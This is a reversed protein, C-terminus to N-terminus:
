EDDDPPSSIYTKDYRRGVYIDVPEAFNIIDSGSSQWKIEFECNGSPFALTEGESLPFTIVNEEITCDSQWWEKIPKGAYFLQAHINAGTMVEDFTIVIPSNSGQYVM